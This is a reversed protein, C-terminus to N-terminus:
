QPGPKNIGPYNQAVGVPADEQFQSPTDWKYSDRHILACLDMTGSYTEGPFGKYVHISFDLKEEDCLPLVGPLRIGPYQNEPENVGYIDIKDKEYPYFIRNMASDATMQADFQVNYVGATKGFGMDDQYIYLELPTNGTNRITPKLDGQVFNYDGGVKKEIGEAVTGYNVSTFDVDFGATPIYWFRNFLYDCYADYNDHARVGVYYWGGPQCYNIEAETYYLYALEENLEDRIDEAATTDVLTNEWVENIKILDSHHAWVHDWINLAETKDYNNSTDFGVPFLEIQYKFSKDPHWVDAYVHEVSDKGELDTVVAYYGVRTNGYLHPKVQLGPILCCADHMWVSGTCPQCQDCIDPTIVVDLDYEWKCKILPAHNGNTVGSDDGDGDGGSPTGTITAETSIDPICYPDDWACDGTPYDPATEDASVITAGVLAMSIVVMIALLKKM